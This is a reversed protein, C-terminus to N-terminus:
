AQKVFKVFQVELLLHEDRLVLMVVKELVQIFIKLVNLVNIKVVHRNHNALCAHCVSYLDQKIKARMCSVFKVNTPNQHVSM